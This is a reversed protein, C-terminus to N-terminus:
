PASRQELDTGSDPRYRWFAPLLPICALVGVVCVIGGSVISFSLSRASALWGARANGLLPGTMYSIMEVGALRGNAGVGNASPADCYSAVPVYLRNRLLRLGGWVYEADNLSVTIAVPWGPKEAGTGLDLAHLWGDASIVYVLRRELDIAGTSSIGWSSCQGAAAITGFTRQWRVSGNRPDLAYLSGAETAAFVISTSRPLGGQGGSVYLPSAIIQGDLKKSWAQRLRQATAPTLGPLRVFNTLQADHGYALWSTAPASADRGATSSPAGVAVLVLLFALPVTPRLM